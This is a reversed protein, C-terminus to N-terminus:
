NRVIGAADESLGTRFPTGTESDPGVEIDVLENPGSYTSWYAVLAVAASDYRQIASIMQENFERCTQVLRRGRLVIGLLPPCNTHSAFLGRVGHDEALKRFAPMLADAHSDGWVIFSPERSAPGGLECLEGAGIAAPDIMHCRDRDPNSDESGAELRRVEESVRQPFGDSASLAVGVIVSALVAGVAIRFLAPRSVVGGYRRFPQEVLKWSFVSVVLSAAVILATEAVDLSRIVYRRSFALLPWHWLYLSYSILGVFVVPRLSLIKAVLTSRSAGSHIISVVGACPLIANLGPFASDGSLQTISWGIAVLGLLAVCENVLRNRVQPFVGLAVLSGLLLEWARSPALYFAASPHFAVAWVSLILSALALLGIIQRSRDGAIRGIVMLTVPYVM